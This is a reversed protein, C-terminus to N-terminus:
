PVSFFAVVILSRWAHRGCPCGKKPLATHVMQCPVPCRGASGPQAALSFMDDLAVLSGLARAAHTSRACAQLLAGRLLIRCMGGGCLNLWFFDDLTACM